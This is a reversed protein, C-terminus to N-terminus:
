PKGGAKLKEILKCAKMPGHELEQGEGYECVYYHKCFEICHREIEEDSFKAANKFIDYIEATVGCDEYPCDKIHEGCNKKCLIDLIEQYGDIMIKM